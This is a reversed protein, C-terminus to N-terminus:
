PPSLVLMPLPPGGGRGQPSRGGEQRLRPWLAMGHCTPLFPLGRLSLEPTAVRRTGALSLPAISCSERRADQLCRTAGLCSGLTGALRSLHVGGHRRTATGSTPRKRTDHGMVAHSVPHDVQRRPLPMGPRATWLSARGIVVPSPPVRPSPFEHHPSRRPKPVTPPISQPVRQCPRSRYSSPLSPMSPRSVQFPALFPGLTTVLRHQATHM